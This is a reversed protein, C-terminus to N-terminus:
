TVVDKLAKVPSARIKRSAPKGKILMPEKTFPNVGQRDQTAPTVKAKLKVLNPITIEGPGEPGLQKKVLDALADLMGNVAKKDLGSSESLATIFQAKTLKNSSSM